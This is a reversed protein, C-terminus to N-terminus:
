TKSKILGYDINSQNLVIQVQTNPYPTPQSFYVTNNYDWEIWYQDTLITYNINRSPPINITSTSLNGFYILMVMAWVLKPQWSLRM